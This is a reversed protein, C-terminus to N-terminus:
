RIGGSSGGGPGRLLKRQMRSFDDPVAGDARLRVLWTPRITGGIEIVDEVSLGLQGCRRTASTVDHDVRPGRIAVIEGSTVFPRALTVTAELSGAARSVVGDFAGRLETDALAEARGHLARVNPLDLAEAFSAVADVKKRRADVLTWSTTPHVRALVLGPLGGGTGLDMWRSGAVPRLARAIRACEDVHVERARARDDRSLLNVPSTALMAALRDAWAADVDEISGPGGIPTREDGPM